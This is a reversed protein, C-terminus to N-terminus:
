TMRLLLLLFSPEPQVVAGANPESGFAGVMDPRIVEDLIMGGIAADVAREVDDVFM